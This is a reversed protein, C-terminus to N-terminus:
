IVKGCLDPVRRGSTARYGALLSEPWVELHHGLHPAWWKGAEVRCQRDDEYTVEVLSEAILVEQRSDQCDGDEDTWHRWESRNYEPIGAPVEAITIVLTTTPTAAPTSPVTTATAAPTYPTNAPALSPTPAEMTATPMPSPTATAPEPATPERPAEMGCELGAAFLATGETVGEERMAETMATAMETPGGLAAMVCVMRERDGPGMGLRPATEVWEEDNLCAVSVSFAAMSGAMATQPDGELGATMVARPDIVDLGAQVCTSTEESLPVPIITAMFLRDVTIDDLCRIFEAQEEMSSPRSGALAALMEGPDEGICALEDESLSSLETEQDTPPQSSHLGQSVPTPATTATTATLEPTNPILAPPAAVAGPAKTETPDPAPAEGTCALLTAILVPLVLAVLYRPQPM